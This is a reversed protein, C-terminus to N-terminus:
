AINSKEHLLKRVYPKTRFSPKCARGFKTCIYWLAAKNFKIWQCQCFRSRYTTKFKKKFEFHLSCVPNLTCLERSVACSSGSVVQSTITARHLLANYKWGTTQEEKKRDKKEDGLRLRRLNSTQWVEVCPTAKTRIWSAPRFCAARPESYFCSAFFDGFIAMQAGGCLKTPSYDECSLCTDVIRFFSTLCCYTRWMDACYPSSRGVLPQSRDPLKLCGQLNWRTELRPLTVALTVPCSSSVGVRSNGVLPSSSERVPCRASKAHNTKRKPLIQSVALQGTRSNAIRSNAYGRTTWNGSRADLLPLWRFKAANFLPRWRHEAPRGDRQANTWM